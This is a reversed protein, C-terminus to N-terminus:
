TSQHEYAAATSYRRAEDFFTATYPLHYLSLDSCGTPHQLLLIAFVKGMALVEVDQGPPTARVGLGYM